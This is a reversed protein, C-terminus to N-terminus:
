AMWWAAGEFREFLDPQGIGRGAAYSMQGARTRDQAVVPADAKGAGQDFVRNRAGVATDGQHAAVAQMIEVEAAGPHVEAGSACGYMQHVCLAAVSGRIRRAPDAHHLGSRRCQQVVDVKHLAGHDAAINRVILLHIEVGNKGAHSARGLM